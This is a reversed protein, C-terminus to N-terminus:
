DFLMTFLPFQAFRSIKSFRAVRAVTNRLLLVLPGPELSSGLLGRSAAVTPARHEANVRSREFWGMKDFRM